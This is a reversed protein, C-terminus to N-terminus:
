RTGFFIALVSNLRVIFGSWNFKWLLYRGGVECCLSERSKRLFLGLLSERVLLVREVTKTFLEGNFEVKIKHFLLCEWRVLGLM